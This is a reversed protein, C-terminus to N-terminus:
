NDSSLHMQARIHLGSHLLHLEGALQRLYLPIHLFARVKCPHRLYQIQIIDLCYVKKLPGFVAAMQSLFHRHFEQHFAM